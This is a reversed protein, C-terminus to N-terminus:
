INFYRLVSHYLLTCIFLLFQLATYTVCDLIFLIPFSFSCVFNELFVYFSFFFFSVFFCVLLCVFLHLCLKIIILIKCHIVTIDRGKCTLKQKVISFKVSRSRTWLSCLWWMIVTITNNWGIRRFNLNLGKPPHRWGDWSIKKELQVNNYYKVYM